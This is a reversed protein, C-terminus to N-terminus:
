IWKRTRKAWEEFHEGFNSRLSAEEGVIYRRHIFWIFVAILFLGVVSGWWFVGASLVLTDGLYIPNRSLKYVGSTVLATPQKRPVVTTRARLLEWVALALLILGVILLVLAASAQWPFSLSLGPMYQATVWALFLFVALWVPPIDLSKM